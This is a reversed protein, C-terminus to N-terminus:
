LSIQDDFPKTGDVTIDALQEPHDRQLYKDEAEFWGKWLQTLEDRTKGTIADRAVGRRLCIEKPTDVFISLSMYSRFERRSSSVGELIMLHSVPQAVVPEPRHNEWWKTRPYGLTKAGNEIPRFIREIVLLWWDLPNDWSAFDDTRVLQAGLKESLWKALTSKGSGGRGDIAIVFVNGVKPQKSAVIQRLDVKSVSIETRRNRSHSDLFGFSRKRLPGCCSRM